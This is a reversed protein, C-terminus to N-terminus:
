TVDKMLDNLQSYFQQKIDEGERTKLETTGCIDITELDWLQSVSAEKVFMSTVQMAM